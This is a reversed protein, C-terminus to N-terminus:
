PDGQVQWSSHEPDLNTSRPTCEPPWRGGERYYPSLEFLAQIDEVNWPNKHYTTLEEIIANQNALKKDHRLERPQWQTASTSTSASSWYCRYIKGVIPICDSKDDVSTILTGERSAFQSKNICVLDVTMQDQPKIKISRHPENMVVILGDTPFVGNSQFSKDLSNSASFLGNTSLFTLFVREFIM